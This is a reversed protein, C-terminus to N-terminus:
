RAFDFTFMTVGEPAELWASTLFGNRDYDYFKKFIYIENLLYDVYNLKGEIDWKFNYVGGDANKEIISKLMGDSDYVYEWDKDIVGANLQKVIRRKLTGGEGYFFKIYFTPQNMSHISISDIKGAPTYYYKTTDSNQPETRLEAKLERNEYFYVTAASNNLDVDKANLLQVEEPLLFFESHIKAGASNFLQMEKTKGLSDILWVIAPALSITDTPKSKMVSKESCSVLKIKGARLFDENFRFDPVSINGIFRTIDSNLMYPRLELVQKKPQDPVDKENGCSFCIFVFLLLHFSNKLVGSFSIRM